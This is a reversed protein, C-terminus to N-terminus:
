VRYERINELLSSVSLPKKGSLFEGLGKPMFVIVLVIFLGLITVHFQGLNLKFILISSVLDFIGAGIVPGLITGPGGLITSLIMELTTGIKFVEEPLVFTKWYANIGGVLGILFACLAFAMVKSQTTNIGLMNASDEDERIAVLSYGLKSKTLRWTLFVALVMLLLTLYYFFFGEIQIPTLDGIQIDPRFFPLTIGTPGNTVPLVRDALNELAEAVGSAGLAKSLRAPVEFLFGLDDAVIERTAEAVGLTAIAFYHGRLRLIPLGILVAFGAAFLAGALISPFFPVGVKKMLIGTVYAGLGFFAVNGFAAYGTYGGMFNWSQAMIALIFVGTLTRLWFGSVRLPPIAILIALAVAGVVSYILNRRGGLLRDLRSIAVERQAIEELSMKEESM